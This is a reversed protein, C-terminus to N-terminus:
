CGRGTPSRVPSNKRAISRLQTPGLPSQGFSREVQAIEAIAAPQWWSALKPLVGPSELVAYMRLDLGSVDDGRRIVPGSNLGCRTLPIRKEPEVPRYSARFHRSLSIRGGWIPLMAEDGIWKMLKGNNSVSNRM